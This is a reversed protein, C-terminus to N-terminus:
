PTGALPALGLGRVLAPVIANGALQKLAVDPWAALGAHPALGCALPAPELSLALEAAAALAVPGELAHSIVVQMGSGHAEAALARCRLLGGLVTPKLVAVQAGGEARLRAMGGELALTEDAAVPVPADRLGPLQDAPVPQEVFEPRFRALAALRVPAEARSWAGNADLRLAARPGLATRVRDLGEIEAEFRWPRGIKVKVAALAGRRAARAGAELEEVSEGDLLGALPVERTPWTGALLTSLPLGLRQGALDLLATEVAFRVSPVAPAHDRLFLGVQPVIPLCLDIECPFARGALRALARWAEDTTEPSLGPLPSAEGQGFHGDDSALVLLVGSRETWRVRANSAPHRLRGRVTELAAVAVRV